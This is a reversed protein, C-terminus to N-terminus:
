TAYTRALVAAWPPTHGGFGRAAWLARFAGRPAADAAPPARDAAPARVRVAASSSPPRPPRAPPPLPSLAAVLEAARHRHPDRAPRPTARLCAHPPPRPRRRRARCCCRQLPWAAVVVTASPLAVRPSALRGTGQTATPASHVLWIGGRCLRACSRPSVGVGGAGPGVPLSVARRLDDAAAWSPAARAARAVAPAALPPGGSKGDEAPCSHCCIDKRGGGQAWALRGSRGSSSRWGRACSVIHHPGRLRCLFIDVAAM